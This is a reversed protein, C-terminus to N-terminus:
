LPCDIASIEVCACLFRNGVRSIQALNRSNRQKFHCQGLDLRATNEKGKTQRETKRERRDRSWRLSYNQGGLEDGLKDAAATPDPWLQWIETHSHLNNEEKSHFYSIKLISYLDNQFLRRSVTANAKSSLKVALRINCRAVSSDPSPFSFPAAISNREARGDFCQDFCVCTAHSLPKWNLQAAYM